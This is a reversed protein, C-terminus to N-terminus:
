LFYKLKIKLKRFFGSQRWVTDKTSELFNWAQTRQEEAMTHDSYVAEQWVGVMDSYKIAYEPSIMAHLPELYMSYLMRDARLGYAKLWDMTYMFICNIAEACDTQWFGARRKAAKRKHWAFWIAASVLILVSFILNYPIKPNAKGVEAGEYEQEYDLDFTNSDAETYPDDAVEEVNLNIDETQDPPPTNQQSLIQSIPQEIQEDFRDRIHESLEYLGTDVGPWAVAIIGIVVVLILLLTIGNGIAESVNIHGCCAFCLALVLYLYISWGRVPFVGFYVEAIIVALTALIIPTKKGSTAILTSLAALIVTAIM